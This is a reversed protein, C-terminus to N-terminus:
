ARYLISAQDEYLLRGEEDLEQIIAMVEERSFPM